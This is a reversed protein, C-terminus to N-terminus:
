HNQKKIPAPLFSICKPSAQSVEKNPMGTPVRCRGETETTKRGGDPGRKEKETERRAEGGRKERGDRPRDGGLYLM